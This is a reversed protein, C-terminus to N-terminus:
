RPLDEPAASDTLELASLNAMRGLPTRIKLALKADLFLPYVARMWKEQLGPERERQPTTLSYGFEELCPGVLAEIGAIDQTSLKDKWRQVPNARGKEEEVFSSNSKLRTVGSQIREYDLDHHLFSGLKALTSAPNRVLEEYQIEIYDDPIQVGYRRGKRVTWEWYLATALLSGSRRDWPLPRFEGMKKLSLAIDRGDRIIHIFLAEPIDAKIKQIYLVNDPDYVAWRDVGQNRAIAGMVGRIFDGGTHFTNVALEMLQNPDLDSRRFGKSRLWTEMIKRRNEIKEMTGFRPILMKYIPLYGRYVAFGGASMLNNYILNTGSRHCGVVFVPCKAREIPHDNGLTRGRTASLPYFRAASLKWKADETSSKILLIFCHPYRKQSGFWRRDM